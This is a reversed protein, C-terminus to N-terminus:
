QDFLPGSQNVDFALAHRFFVLDVPRTYSFSVTFLPGKRHIQVDQPSLEIGMEKAKEIVAGRLQDMSRKERGASKVQSEVFDEFEVASLYVSGYKFGAFVLVAFITLFFVQRWQLRAM